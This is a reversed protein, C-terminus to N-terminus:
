AADREGRKHINEHMYICQSDLNRSHTSGKCIGIYQFNRSFMMMMMLARVVLGFFWCVEKKGGIGAARTPRSFADDENKQKTNQTHSPLCIAEPIRINLRASACKGPQASIVGFHSFLLSSSIQILLARSRM